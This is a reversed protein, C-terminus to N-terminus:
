VETTAVGCCRNQPLASATELDKVARKVAMRKL